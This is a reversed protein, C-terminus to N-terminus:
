PVSASKGAPHWRDSKITVCVNRETITKQREVSPPNESGGNSNLNPPYSFGGETLSLAPLIGAIRNLLLVSM